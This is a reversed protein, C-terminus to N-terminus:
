PKEQLVDSPQQRLLRLNAEAVADHRPNLMVARTLYAEAATRDGRVMAAYGVAGLDEPLTERVSWAFAQEYRGQMAISLMLNRRAVTLTPALKLAQALDMEAEAFRRQLLRSWGRNNLAAAFAPELSLARAYAAEADGFRQLRDCAVGRASWADALMPERGLVDDLVAMAEAPRGLEILAKGRGLLARAVQAPAQAAREFLPMAAAPQGEAAVLEAERLAVAVPDATGRLMAIMNRAEATRGESLAADVGALMRDAPSPAVMTEVGAGAPAAAPGSAALLLVAM